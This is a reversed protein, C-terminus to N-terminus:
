RKSLAFNADIDTYACNANLLEEGIQLDSMGALDSIEVYNAKYGRLRPTGGTGFEWLVYGCVLSEGDNYRGVFDVAGMLEDVPYWTIKYATLDRVPGYDVLQSVREEEWSELPMNMAWAESYFDVPATTEQDEVLDFFRNTAKVLAQEEIPFESPVAIEVVPLDFLLLSLVSGLM